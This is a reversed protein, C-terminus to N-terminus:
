DGRPMATPTPTGCPLFLVTLQQGSTVPPNQGGTPDCGCQTYTIDDQKEGVVLQSDNAAPAAIINGYIFQPPSGNEYLAIEYRLLATTQNYYNTRWEVYFIRNPAIGTTTIFIGCNICSTSGCATTCQDGWYPALVYTAGSNGFPSCTIVFNDYPTGFTLHGNSGADATTYTQGYITVPFPLTIQTGCDDCHSGIDTVGPM